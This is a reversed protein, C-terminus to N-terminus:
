AALQAMPTITYTIDANRAYLGAVAFQARAAFNRLLSENQVLIPDGGPTLLEADVTEGNEDLAEATAKNVAALVPTQNSLQALATKLPTTSAGEKLNAFLAIEDTPALEPKIKLIDSFRPQRRDDDERLANRQSRRSPARTADEASSTTIQTQIPILSGDEAVKYKYRATITTGVAFDTASAAQRLQSAVVEEAGRETFALRSAEASASAAAFNYGSNISTM